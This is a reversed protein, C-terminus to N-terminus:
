GVSSFIAVSFPVSLGPYLGYLAPAAQANTLTAAAAPVPNVPRRAASRCVGTLSRRLEAFVRSLTLPMGWAEPNMRLM